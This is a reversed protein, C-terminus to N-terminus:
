TFPILAPVREGYRAYADGFQERMWREELRLKRWLAALAIAVALLSRWEDRALASGAIAVLLGTYIPHRVLAYPGTAVLRHDQLLAVTGSWNGGLHMRAWVAFALGLAVLAVALWFEWRAVALLRRNMAAIPFRDAGLLVGCLMLPVLHLLRSVPPERRTPRKGARSALWWYLAWVSWMGTILHEHVFEM